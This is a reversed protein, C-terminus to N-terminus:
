VGDTTGFAQRIWAAFDEAHNDTKRDASEGSNVEVILEPTADITYFVGRFQNLREKAAFVIEPIRGSSHHVRNGMVWYRKEEQFREPLIYERLAFPGKRPNMAFKERLTQMPIDPWVSELPDEEVLSKVADKIFCRSWGRARIMEVAQEGLQECFVTPITLPEILPFWRDIRSYNAYTQGSQVYRADRPFDEEEVIPGRRVLRTAFGSPETRVSLGAARMAEAENRYPWYIDGDEDSCYIIELAQTYITSM